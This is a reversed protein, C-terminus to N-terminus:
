EFEIQTNKDGITITSIEVNITDRKDANDINNEYLRGKATM